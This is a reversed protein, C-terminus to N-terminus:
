PRQNREGIAVAWAEYNLAERCMVVARDPNFRFFERKPNVRHDGFADHLAREVTVADTVECAYFCEFPVPVGSRTSPSRLQM